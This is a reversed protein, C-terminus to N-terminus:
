FLYKLGTEFAAMKGTHGSEFFQAYSSSLLLCWRDTLRWDYDVRMFLLPNYYYRTEYTYAYTKDEVRDYSVRSFLYGAGASMLLRMNESLRLPYGAAGEVPTMYFSSISKLSTQFSYFGTSVTLIMKKKWPRNIYIAARSGYGYSAGNSFDGLPYLFVGTVALDYKGTIDAIGRYYREIRNLLKELARDLDKEGDALASASVDLTDEEVDVVLLDITYRNGEKTVTGLIVKKVKLLSGVKMACDYDRCTKANIGQAELVEDVQSKERITFLRTEYLKTLLQDTLSRATMVPCNVPQLDLLALQIKQRPAAMGRGAMVLPLSAIILLTFVSKM